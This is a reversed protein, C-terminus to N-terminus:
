EFTCILKKKPSIEYVQTIKIKKIEVKETKNENFACTWSFFFFLQAMTHEIMGENHVWQNLEMSPM